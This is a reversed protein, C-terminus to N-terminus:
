GKDLGLSEALEAEEPCSSPLAENGAVLPRRLEAMKGRVLELKQGILDRVHVCTERPHRQISFLERIESLSFGLLQAKQIFELDAIKSDQYLRYGGRTRVPKPVLGTKEYFRIADVSLGTKLAVEGSQMAGM